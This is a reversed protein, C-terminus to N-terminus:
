IGSVHRERALLALRGIVDEMQASVGWRSAITKLSIQLFNIENLLQVTRTGARNNRNLHQLLEDSSLRNRSHLRSPDEELVSAWVDHWHFVKPLGITDTKSLCATGFVMAAAFIAVPIHTAHVQGLPVKNLLRSIASAHLLARVADASKVWSNADFAHIGGKVPIGGLLQPLKFTECIMRYLSTSPAILEICVTHWRILIQLHGISTTSVLPEINGDYLHLLARMIQSRPITGFVPGTVEHLDATLSQLGEMVVSISFRSLELPARLYDLSFLSVFIESVPKQSTGSRAMELLWEDATRAAFAADSCTACISNILHSASAPYGSAQSLLGDLIYHGLIARRQVESAAWFKWAATKDAEPADLSPPDETRISYMGCTRAWYFGLGHFVFATTRINANSSLLAYTQGLLATLVLQIGECGDHPGRSGILAQWSTAAATHGLRWLMEGKQSSGPSCVFLSGLAVMNLLLPPITERTAFTPEHIVPFCPSIREFFEQLCADLFASTIGTNHLDANLRKSLDDILKYIQNVASKGPGQQATGDQDGINSHNLINNTLHPQGPFDILPLPVTSSNHFDPMLWELLPDPELLVQSSDLGSQYFPDIDTIDEAVAYNPTLPFTPPREMSQSQSTESLSADTQPPTGNHLKM